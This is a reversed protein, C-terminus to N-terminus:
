VNRGRTRVVPARDAALSLSLRTTDGLKGLRLQGRLIDSSLPQPEITGRSLVESGYLQYHYREYQRPNWDQIESLLEFFLMRSQCYELLVDIMDELSFDAGFRTLVPRFVPRDQCFRRLEKATFADRVLNRIASINYQNPEARPVQCVTIRKYAEQVKRIAQFVQNQWDNDAKDIFHDVGYYRVARLVQKARVYRTLLIVHMQPMLARFAMALSLGSEDDEGEEHLRVDIFAFDFSDQEVATWAEGDSAAPHVTHGADTLLGSLTRLFDPTNDVVLIKYM